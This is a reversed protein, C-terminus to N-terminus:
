FCIYVIDITTLDVIPNDIIGMFYAIYKLVFRFIYTDNM